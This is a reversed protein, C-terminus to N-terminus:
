VPEAPDQRLCERGSARKESLWKEGTMIGPRGIEICDGGNSGM